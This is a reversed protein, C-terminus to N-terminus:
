RSLTLLSVYFFIINLLETPIVNLTANSFKNLVYMEKRIFLLYKLLLTIDDISTMTRDIKLRLDNRTNNHIILGDILNCKYTHLKPPLLSCDNSEDHRCVFKGNCSAHYKMFVNNAICLLIPLRLKRSRFRDIHKRLEIHRFINTSTLCTIGFYNLIIRKIRKIIEEFNSIKMHSNHNQIYDMYLVFRVNNRNIHNSLVKDYYRINSMISLLLREPTAQTINLDILAYVCFNNM